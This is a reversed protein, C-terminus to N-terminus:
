MDAVHTPKRTRSSRRLQTETETTETETTETEAETYDLPEVVPKQHRGGRVEGRLRDHPQPIDRRRGEIALRSLGGEPRRANAEARERGPDLHLIRM